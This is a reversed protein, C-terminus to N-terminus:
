GRLVRKLCMDRHARFRKRYAILKRLGSADMRAADTATAEEGNSQCHCNFAAFLQGFEATILGDVRDIQVLASILRTLHEEQNASLPQLNRLLDTEIDKIWDPMDERRLSQRARLGHKMANMASAAKGAATRPGKSKAGNRRSAERAADSRPPPSQGSVM